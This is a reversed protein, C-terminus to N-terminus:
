VFIAARKKEVSTDRQKRAMRRRNEKRNQSAKSCAYSSVGYDLPNANNLGWCLSSPLNAPRLSNFTQRDWSAFLIVMIAEAIHVLPKDV